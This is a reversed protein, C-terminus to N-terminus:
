VMEPKIVRDVARRGSEKKELCVIASYRFMVAKAGEDGCVLFSALKELFPLHGVIMLDREVGPKVAPARLNCLCIKRRGWDPSPSQLLFEGRRSPNFDIRIIATAGIILRPKLFLFRKIQRYRGAM